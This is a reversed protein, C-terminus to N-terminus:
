AKVEKARLRKQLCANCNCVLYGTCAIERACGFCYDQDTIGTIEIAFREGPDTSGPVQIALIYRGDEHYTNLEKRCKDCYIKKV